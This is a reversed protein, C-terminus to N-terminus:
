THHSEERARVQRAGESLHRLSSPAPISGSDRRRVMPVWWPGRTSCSGCWTRRRWPTISRQAGGKQQIDMLVDAANELTPELGRARTVVALTKGNLSADFECRSFQVNAPDGGGRDDRIRRVIEAKIRAKQEPAGLRELLSKAGGELSWQPFLAASGTHSATYPYQDITVDVGRARAEEVLRLTDKSRGWFAKGLIKHHTIQTPLGGEEGIRITERVSELVEAAEDRMHSVHAGGFEGAVRALEIVEETPTYNGPVYFLGTSLGMAGDLMAQRVLDKMKQIEEPTAKRNVLGLVKTRVSGQGVFYGFNISPPSATLKEFTPRLPM